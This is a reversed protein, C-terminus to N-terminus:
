CCGCWSARQRRGPWGAPFTLALCTRYERRLCCSVRDIKPFTWASMLSAKAQHHYEDLGAPEEFTLDCSHPSNCVLISIMRVYLLDPESRDQEINKKKGSAAVCLALARQLLFFFACSVIPQALSLPPTPPKKPSTAHPRPTPSYSTNNLEFRWGKWNMWDSFPGCPSFLCLWTIFSSHVQPHPVPAVQPKDNYATISCPMPRLQRVSRRIGAEARVIVCLPFTSSDRWEGCTHWRFKNVCPFVM